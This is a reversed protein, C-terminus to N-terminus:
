GAHNLIFQGIEAISQRSEPVFRATTQFVHWMGPWIKIDVDVGAARARQALRVSDSLLVEDEGVHICLPPLGTLDMGLTYLLPTDPPNDGAYRGGNLVCMEKTLLPDVSAKTSYSEGDFRVWELPPSLFFAASPMPRGEEKLQLLSQLALGGGASDGGIIVRDAPYGEELLWEYAHIVDLMAAPFPHEPALRYDLVLFRTHSAASLRAAMERHTEPSGMIFGGGHLYIVAAESDTGNAYVWEADLGNVQLLEIITNNPVSMNRVIYDDIERWKSLDSGARIFKSGIMYKAVIRFIRARVSPTM